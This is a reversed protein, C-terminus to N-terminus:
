LLFDLNGASETTSNRDKELGLGGGVLHRPDDVIQIAGHLTLM